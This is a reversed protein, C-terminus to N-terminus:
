KKKSKCEAIKKLYEYNEQLNSLKIKTDALEETINDCKTSLNLNETKCENYKQSLLQNQEELMRNRKELEDINKQFKKKERNLSIKLDKKLNHSNEEKVKNTVEQIETKMNSIELLNQEIEKNKKQLEFSIEMIKGNLSKNENELEILKQDNNSQFNIIELNYKDVAASYLNYIEELRFSMLEEYSNYMHVLATMVEYYHRHVSDLEDCIFKDPSKKQKTLDIGHIKDKLAKNEESLRAALHDTSHYTQKYFKIEEELHKNKEKLNNLESECNKSSTKLSTIINELCQVKKELENNQLKFFSDCSDKGVKQIENNIEFNESVEASEDKAEEIIELLKQKKQKDAQEIYQDKTLFIQTSFQGQGKLKLNEKQLKKIECLLLDSYANRSKGRNHFIHDMFYLITRNLAFYPATKQIHGFVHIQGGFCISKSLIQILHNCAQMGGDRNFETDTLIKALADTNKSLQSIDAFQVFSKEENRTLIFTTVYVDDKAKRPNFYETEFLFRFGEVYENVCKYGKVVSSSSGLNIKAMGIEASYGSEIAKRLISPILGNSSAFLNSRCISIICHNYDLDLNLFSSIDELTDHESFIRDFLYKEISKSSEPKIWHNEKNMNPSNLIKDKKAFMDLSVQDSQDILELTTKSLVKICSPYQFSADDKILRCYVRTMDDASSIKM